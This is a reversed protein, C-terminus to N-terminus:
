PRWRDREEGNVDAQRLADSSFHPSVTSSGSGTCNSDVSLSSSPQNLDSLVELPYLGQIPRQFTETHYFM